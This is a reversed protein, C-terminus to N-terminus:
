GFGDVFGASVEDNVAVRVRTVLLAHGRAADRHAVGSQRQQASGVGDIVDFLM